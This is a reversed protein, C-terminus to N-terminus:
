GVDGAFHRDRRRLRGATSETLTPTNAAELHSQAIQRVDPTWGAMVRVTTMASSSSGDRSCRRPSAARAFASVRSLIM